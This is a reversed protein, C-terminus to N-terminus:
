IYKNRNNKVESFSVNPNQNLFNTVEMDEDFRKLKRICGQYVVGYHKMQKLESNFMLALKYLHRKLICMIDDKDSIKGSSYYANVFCEGGCVFKAFCDECSKTNILSKWLKERKEKNIGKDLSGMELDKIGIGGPCAYIKRDPALSFRGVGADCRTIVKQHVIARILFKGFYDDGNLIASLYKINGKSTQDILFDNLDTYADLINDINSANIGICSDIARVPKMSITPFYKILHNLNHVLNLNNDTITLAVGILSHDKIKKINKIVKKYTGRQNYDFRYKDNTSKDGDLSVGFLIGANRLREVVKNKLLLGNTVIMPLVERKLENSKEKCYEGIQCLLDLELLPEGSGTPDVIYKGANPYNEIVLDIFKKADEFSLEENTREQMFCYKCDMNCQNSIHLSIYVTKFSDVDFDIKYHFESFFDNFKLEDELLQKDQFSEKDIEFVKGNDKNIIFMENEGEIVHLNNKLDFEEM